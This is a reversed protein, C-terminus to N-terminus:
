TAAPRLTYGIGRVTHVIRPHGHEELKNRLYSIAVDLARSSTEFDYGWVKEYLADRTVVIGSNNALVVLIDFELKTLDIITDDMTVSRADIDVLLSGFGIQDTGNDKTEPRRLLARVRALLEDISFPKTLYDDAGADLGQVKDPVETRATLMIIPESRGQDRIMRCLSIGDIHPLGVDLIIADFRHDAVAQLGASGDSEVQVQYGAFRLAREIATRIGKDDEVVLIKSETTM